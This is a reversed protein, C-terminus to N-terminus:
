HLSQSWFTTRNVYGAQTVRSRFRSEHASVSPVPPVGLGRARIARRGSCSGRALACALVYRRPCPRGLSRKLTQPPCWRGSGGLPHSIRPASPTGPSTRPRPPRTTSSQSGGRRRPERLRTPAARSSGSTARAPGMRRVSPRAAGSPSQAPRARRSWPRSPVRLSRSRRTGFPSRASHGLRARRARRGGPAPRVRRARIAPRAPVGTPGRPGTDGRLSAIAGRRIKVLTVSRNKLQRTGVSNPALTVAAYSTGGIAFFLAILALHNRRLYGVFRVLM